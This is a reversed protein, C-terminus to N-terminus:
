LAAGSSVDALQHLFCGILEVGIVVCILIRLVSKLLWSM